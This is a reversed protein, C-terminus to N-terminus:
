DGDWIGDPRMKAMAILQYLPRIANAATDDWYNRTDGEYVSNKIETEELNDIVRAVIIFALAVISVASM